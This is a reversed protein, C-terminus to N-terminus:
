YYLPSENYRGSIYRPKMIVLYNKHDWITFEGQITNNRYSQYLLTENYCAYKEPGLSRTIVLTWQILYQEWKHIENKQSTCVKISPYGHVEQKRCLETNETSACDVAAVQVVHKWVTHMCVFCFLVYFSKTQM